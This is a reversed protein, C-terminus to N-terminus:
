SFRELQTPSQLTVKVYVIPDDLWWIHQGMHHNLIMEFNFAVYITALAQSSITLIIICGVLM